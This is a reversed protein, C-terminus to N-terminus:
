LQDENIGTLRFVVKLPKTFTLCCNKSPRGKPPADQYPLFKPGTDAKRAEHVIVKIKM